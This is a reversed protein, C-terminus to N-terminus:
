YASRLGRVFVFYVIEERRHPDEFLISFSSLLSGWIFVKGEFTPEPKTIKESLCLFVKISGVLTSMFCLSGIYKKVLHLFDEKFKKFNKINKAKFILFPVLHLILYFKFGKM